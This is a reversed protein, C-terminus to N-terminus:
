GWKLMFLLANDESSFYVGTPLIVCSICMNHAWAKIDDVPIHREGDTVFKVLHNFPNKYLKTYKM